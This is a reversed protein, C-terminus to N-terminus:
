ADLFLDAAIGDAYLKGENTLWIVSGHQQLHGRRTHKVAQELVYKKGMEPLLATDIGEATRLAIMIYENFRQVPTLIEEEFPINGENIAHIYKQNSAVNWRRAMGNFSHASPGFGWYPVGKWYASNHRSRFGPKAFNSIEYHEFGADKLWNMLLLFQESQRGADIDNKEHKRIMKDLPTKPEITLAYCSLHPVGLELATEVNQRWRGDSLGPVGYILDITINEFDNLALLLGQRAQEANHARNMWRLDEEFFSQVGISLRNIGAKKWAKLQAASLDDPNAELTIEADDAVPYYRNAQELLHAIADTELLSPTGGGFYLTAVPQQKIFGGAGALQMEREIADVLQKKYHLSTTFHFNCYNCAQRCFPIHIYIGAM